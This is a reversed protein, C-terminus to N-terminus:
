KDGHYQVLIKDLGCDCKPTEDIPKSRYWKDVFKERYGGDETPEGAQWFSRICNDTHQSYDLLMKAKEIAELYGEARGIIREYGYATQPGYIKSVVDWIGRRNIRNKIEKAVKENM